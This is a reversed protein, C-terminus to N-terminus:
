PGNSCSGDVEARGAHRGICQRRAVQLLSASGDYIAPFVETVSAVPPGHGSHVPDCQVRLDTKMSRGRACAAPLFPRVIEWEEDSVDSEFRGAQRTYHKLTKRGLCPVIEM